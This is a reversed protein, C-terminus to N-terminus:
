WPPVSFVSFVEGQFGAHSPAHESVVAQRAENMPLRRARRTETTLNMAGHTHNVVSARLVCLLFVEDEFGAHTTAHVSVMLKRVENM